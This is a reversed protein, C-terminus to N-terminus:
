CCGPYHNEYDEELLTSYDELLRIAGEDDGNELAAVANELIAVERTLQSTLSCLSGGCCPSAIDSRWLLAQKIELMRRVEDISEQRTGDSAINQVLNAVSDKIIILM